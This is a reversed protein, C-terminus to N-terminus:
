RVGVAAQLEHAPVNIVLRWRNDWSGPTTSSRSDVLTARHSAPWDHRLLDLEAPAWEWGAHETLWGLRKRLRVPRTSALEALQQRDLRPDRGARELVRLCGSIGDVFAPKRVVDLVTLERSSIPLRVDRWRTQVLDGADISPDARVARLVTTDSTRRSPLAGSQIGLTVRGYADPYWGYHAAATDFGLYFRLGRRRLAELRAAIDPAEVGMAALPLVAYVGRGIPSLFGKRKLRSALSRVSSRSLGPSAAEIDDLTVVRVRDAEWAELLALERSGLSRSGSTM